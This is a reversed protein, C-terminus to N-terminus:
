PAAELWADLDHLPAGKANTVTIRVAHVGPLNQGASATSVRFDRGAFQVREAPANGRPREGYLRLENARNDALVVALLKEEIRASQGTLGSVASLCAASLVAFVALAIMVELLTFGREANM